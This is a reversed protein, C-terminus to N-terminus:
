EAGEVFVLSGTSAEQRIPKIEAQYRESEYWGRAGGDVPFEIVM